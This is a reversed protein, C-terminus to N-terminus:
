ADPFGSPTSGSASPWCTRRRPTPGSSPASRITSGPCSSARPRRRAPPHARRGVAHPGLLRVLRRDALGSPDPGGRLRPHAGRPQDLLRGPPPHGRRDPQHRLRGHLAPRQRDGRRHVRLPAGRDSTAVFEQNWAHIQSLDAFGGKTFARLLNLTAVSQEYATVLRTPDPIRGDAGAPRRQGHTGPVLRHGPRRGARHALQAAQRVARRDPRGQGGPARRRLDPGGGDPPHGQAQRPDRRGHVRHVVRRLRRGPARVGTWRRGPGAVRTLHRAEGAFVLPPLGSLRAHVRKLAGEDPWIPQQAAPRHRWSDPAWGEAPPTTPTSSTVVGM